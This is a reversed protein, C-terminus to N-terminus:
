PAHPVLPPRVAYWREGKLKYQAYKLNSFINGSSSFQSKLTILEEQRSPKTPDLGHEYLSRLLEPYLNAFGSITGSAGLRVAEALDTERGVYVKFNKITALLQRTFALNGESEKLGVINNPFAAQLRAVLTPTFPVGTLQPIHYLLIKVEPNAILQILEKFYAFLGDDTVNKFFYPPTVLMASVGAAYGTHCLTAAENVSSAHCGVIVKSFDIARKKLADLIEIKETLSFSSGEGTTGFLVVGECGRSFLEQWHEVLADLDCSLDSRLPTLSAAYVGNQLPM